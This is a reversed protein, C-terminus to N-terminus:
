MSYDIEWCQDEYDWYVYYENLREDDYLGKKPMKELEEKTFESYYKIEHLM